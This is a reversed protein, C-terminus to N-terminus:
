DGGCILNCKSIRLKNLERLSGVVQFIDMTIGHRLFCELSLFYLSPCKPLISLLNQEQIMSSNGGYISLRHISPINDVTSLFARDNGGGIGHEEIITTTELQQESYLVLELEEMANQYTELFPKVVAASVISYLLLHRLGHANKPIQDMVTDIVDTYDDVNLTLITLEPCYQYIVPLAGEDFGRLNIIHVKPSHKFLGTLRNGQAMGHHCGFDVHELM